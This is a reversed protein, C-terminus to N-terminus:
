SALAARLSDHLAPTAAGVIQRRAEPDHVVLERGQADTVVAGAEVCALLGGLYDWPAHRGPPPDLYADLGGAAVDCLALAASGLARMQKWRLAPSPWGSVAVVADEIQETPAATLRTGDRWAGKGRIATTREGTTTNMVLACLMESDVLACLSIGWYPIGRACNTSGDIPDVVVTVDSAPGSRGSEESVVTVPATALVELVAADALLDVAYQSPRATRRRREVPTIPALARAQAEAARGFLELLENPDASV